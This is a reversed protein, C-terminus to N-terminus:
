SQQKETPGTATLHRTALNSLFFMSVTFVLKSATITKAAVTKTVGTGDWSVGFFFGV